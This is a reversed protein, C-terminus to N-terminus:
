SSFSHFIDGTHKGIFKVFRQQFRFSCGDATHLLSKKYSAHATFILSKQHSRHAPLSSSNQWSVQMAGWACLVDLYISLRQVLKYNNRNRAKSECTLPRSTQNLGMSSHFFTDWYTCCTRLHRCASVLKLCVKEFSKTIGNTWTVTTAKLPELFFPCILHTVFFIVCVGAGIVRSRSM